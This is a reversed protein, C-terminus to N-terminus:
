GGGVKMNILSLHLLPRQTEGEFGNPSYKGDDVSNSPELKCQFLLTRISVQGRVSMRDRETEREIRGTFVLGLISPDTHGVM